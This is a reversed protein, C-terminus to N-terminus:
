SVISRDYKASFSLIFTAVGAAVMTIIMAASPVTDTFSLVLLFFIVVFIRGAFMYLERNMIANYYDDRSTFKYFGAELPVHLISGFIGGMTQWLTMAMVTPALARMIVSSGHGLSGIAIMKRNGARDTFKGSYYGIISFALNSFLYLLGISTLKIDSLFLLIPWFFSIAHFGIGEIFYILNKGAHEFDLIRGLRMNSKEVAIDRSFLLAGAAALLLAASTLFMAKFGYEDILLAGLFPSMIGALVPVGNIFGARIGSNAATTTKFFYVHHATWYIVTASVNFVAIVVLYATRDMNLFVSAAQYLLLYLAINLIYSIILTRKVGWAPIYRIAFYHMVISAVCMALELFVVAEVTIGIKLLFIPIFLSIMALALHRLTDAIVLDNYEDKLWPSFHLHRALHLHHYHKDM